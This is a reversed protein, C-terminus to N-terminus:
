KYLVLSTVSATKLLMFSKKFSLLIILVEIQLSVRNCPWPKDRNERRYVGDWSELTLQWNEIYKPFLPKTFFLARRPFQFLHPIFSFIPLHWTNLDSSSHFKHTDTLMKWSYSILMYTVLTLNNITFSPSSNLVVAATIILPVPILNNENSCLIDLSYVLGYITM